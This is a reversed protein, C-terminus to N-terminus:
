LIGAMKRRDIEQGIVTITEDVACPGNSDLWKWLEDALDAPLAELYHKFWDPIM